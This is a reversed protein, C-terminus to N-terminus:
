TPLAPGLEMIGAPARLVLAAQCAMSTCLCKALTCAELNRPPSSQSAPFASGHFKEKRAGIVALAKSLATYLM